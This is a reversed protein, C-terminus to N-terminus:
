FTGDHLKGSTGARDPKNAAIEAYTKDAKAADESVAVTVSQRGRDEAARENHKAELWDKLFKAAFGLIGTIVAGIITEFM